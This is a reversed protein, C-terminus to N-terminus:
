SKHFNQVVIHITLDYFFRMITKLLCNVTSSKKRYRFKPVTVFYFGRGIYIKEENLGCDKPSLQTM